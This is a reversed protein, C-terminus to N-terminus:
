LSGLLLSDLAFLYACVQFRRGQVLLHFCCCCDIISDEQTNHWTARTLVSTESSHIVETMLTFLILSNPVINATALLQLMRILFVTVYCEKAVRKPQKNYGSSPPLVNRQFMLESLIWM